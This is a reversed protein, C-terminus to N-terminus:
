TGTNPPETLDNNSKFAQILRIGPIEQKLIRVYQDLTGNKQALYLEKSTFTAPEDPHSHGVNKFHVEGAQYSIWAPREQLEEQTATAFHITEKAFLHESCDPTDQQLHLTQQWYHCRDAERFVCNMCTPMPVSQAYCSKKHECPYCAPDTESHGWGATPLSQLTLELKELTKKYYEGDFPIKEQYVTGSQLSIVHLYFETIGCAGMTLQAGGWLAPMGRKAGSGMLMMLQPEETIDIKILAWEQQGKQKFIGDAHCLVKGDALLYEYKKQLKPHLTHITYQRRRLEEVYADVLAQLLHKVRLKKETENSQKSEWWLARPCRGEVTYASIM